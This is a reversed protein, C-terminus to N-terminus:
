ILQAVFSMDNSKNLQYTNTNLYAIITSLSSILDLLDFCLMLDHTFVLFM